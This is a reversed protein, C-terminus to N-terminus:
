LWTLVLVVILSDVVPLFFKGTDDLDGKVHEGPWLEKMKDRVNEWRCPGGHEFVADTIEAVGCGQKKMTIIIDVLAKTWKHNWTGNYTYKTVPMTTTLTHPVSHTTFQQKRRHYLRALLQQFRPQDSTNITATTSSTYSQPRLLQTSIRDLTFTFYLYERIIYYIKHYEFIYHSYLASFAIRLAQATNLDPQLHRAGLLTNNLLLM